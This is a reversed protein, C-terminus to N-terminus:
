KENENIKINDDIQQQTEEKEMQSSPKIQDSESETILTPTEKKQPLPKNEQQLKQIQEEIIDNGREFFQQSDQGRFQALAQPQHVAILCLCSSIVGCLSRYKFKNNM